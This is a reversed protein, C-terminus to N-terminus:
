NAAMEEGVQSRSDLSGGNLPQRREWIEGVEVFTFIYDWIEGVEVAIEHRTAPSLKAVPDRAPLMLQGFNARAQYGSLARCSPRHSCCRNGLIQEQNGSISREVASNLISSKFARKTTGSFQLGSEPHFSMYAAEEM